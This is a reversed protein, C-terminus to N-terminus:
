EYFSGILMEEWYEKKIWGSFLLFGFSELLILIPLYLNVRKLIEHFITLLHEFFFDFKMESGTAWSFLRKLTFQLLCTTIQLNFRVTVRHTQNQM